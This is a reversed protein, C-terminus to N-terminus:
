ETRQGALWGSWYCDNDPFGSLVECLYDALALNPAETLHHDRRPFDGVVPEINVVEAGYGPSRALAAAREFTDDGWFNSDLVGHYEWHRFAIIFPVDIRMSLELMKRIQTAVFRYGEPTNRWAHRREAGLAYIGMRLHVYIESRSLTPSVSLPEYFDNKHLLYIILDPDLEPATLEMHDAVNEANYGPVGLNLVEIRDDITEMRRQWTDELQVSWGFTESDGYTLIRFRAGKTAIPRDSRIGDENVQWFIPEPVPDHLGRSLAQSNPKLAYGRADDTTAIIGLLISPDPPILRLVFEAIVFLFLLPVLIILAWGLIAVRRSKREEM